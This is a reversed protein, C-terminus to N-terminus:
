DCYALQVGLWGRLSAAVSRTNSSSELPRNEQHSCRHQQREQPLQESQQQQQQQGMELKEQQRLQQHQKAQQGGQETCSVCPPSEVKDQRSVREHNSRSSYTESKARTSSHRHTMPRIQSIGLRPTLTHLTHLGHPGMLKVLYHALLMCYGLSPLYLLREGIFTGVYFFINAAPVFPGVILGVAVVMRWVAQQQRRPQLMGAKDDNAETGVAQRATASGEQQVQSTESGSPGSTDLKSASAAPATGQVLSPVISWPRGAAILWLLTVYLAATAANRPDSLTHVYPICAFSWDASLHLPFLLLHFYKAHLYGNTLRATQPEAFPIPNEVQVTLGCLTHCM